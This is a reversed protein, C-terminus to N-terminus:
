KSVSEVGPLVSVSTTEEQNHEANLPNTKAKAETQAHIAGQIMDHVSPQESAQLANVAGIVFLISRLM